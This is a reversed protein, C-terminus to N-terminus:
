QLVHAYLRSTANNIKRENLKYVDHDLWERTSLRTALRKLIVGNSLRSLIWERTSLWQQVDECEVTIWGNWNGNYNDM